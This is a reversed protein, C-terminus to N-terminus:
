FSSKGPSETIFFDGALESFTPEIGPDPLDEPSPFLLGSAQSVEHVSSGPLRCDMPSVFSNSM